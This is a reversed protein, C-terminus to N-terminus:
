GHMLVNSRCCPAAAATCLVVSRYLAFCAFCRLAVYCSAVLGAMHSQVSHSWSLQNIDVNALNKQVPVIKARRVKKGDYGARGAILEPGM